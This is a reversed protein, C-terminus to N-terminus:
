GALHALTARIGLLLHIDTALNNRLRSIARFSFQQLSYGSPIQAHVMSLLRIVLISVRGHM